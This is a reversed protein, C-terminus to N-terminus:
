SGALPLSCRVQTGGTLGPVIEVTGGHSWARERMGALGLGRRGDPMTEPLGVGDDEVALHLRGGSSGFRITVASAGAHRAVNTLAEQLIRFAATAIAPPVNPLPSEAEITVPHGARREYDRAQWRIAAELGLDDLVGPRLEASIRRVADVTQDILHLAEGIRGAAPAHSASVQNRAWSLDLKLGTLAQGLEDHLEQSIRAREAERAEEMHAALLRLHKRQRLATIGFVLDRGLDNLLTVEDGDLADAGDTHLNLVAEVRDTIRIPVVASAAIGQGRAVDRWPGFRPDSDLDRAVETVGSRIAAGAPGSAAAEAAWAMPEGRAEGRGRAWSVLPEIRCDPSTGVRGVWALRYGGLQVALRCVGEYVAREDAAQTVLREVETRLRLARHARVLAEERRRDRDINTHTGLMRLPRGDPTREVIAGTSLVWRWDGQKTRQRFEVRYEPRRGAVYDQYAQYTSARDDPHLRDRWRENTEDLEGPEYGAMREYGDNVLARGTQVNLDWLGHGGAAVALRLRAESDRLRQEAERAAREAARRETVDLALVLEAEHGEWTMTHSTIEVQRVTGDRWRHRWVGAADVGEPKVTLSARLAPVDEPPRIDAITMGLFEDRTYGYRAVAADNVALFALTTRDYVWMPHPNSEFLERYRRESRELAEQAAKRASIDELAAFIATVAGRDDRVAAVSLSVAIASGDKRERVLERAVIEGGEGIERLHAEYEHRRDAPVIPNRRGVAEHVSWGFVREAAPNWIQVVGELDVVILPVPSAEIVASLHGSIERFRAESERLSQEAARRETIDVGSRLIGIAQGAPDRLMVNHWGILRPSGDRTRIAYEVYEDLDVVDTFAREHLSRVREADAPLAFAELWDRGVVDTEATDLTDLARRNVLTVRGARDTVVHLVGAADFYQRRLFEDSAHATVDRDFGTWRVPRGAADRTIRGVSHIWRWSGDRHRTRYRVEYLPSHGALHEAALHAVWIRDEPHIRDQWAARSDPLEDAGFGLLAKLSSSLFIRDPIDEPREPDMLLDWLGTETLELALRFREDSRRARDWARRLRQLLLEIVVYLLVASLLVFLWGKLTQIQAAHGPDRAIRQAVRDSLLIWLFGFVTYLGSVILAMRAAPLRRDAM